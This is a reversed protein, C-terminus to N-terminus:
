RVMEVDVKEGISINEFLNSFSNLFKIILSIYNIM